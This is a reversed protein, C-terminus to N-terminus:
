DTGAVFGDPLLIAVPENDDDVIRGARDVLFIKDGDELVQGNPLIEVTDEDARDWRAAAIVLPAGGEVWRPPQNPSCGLVSFSLALLGSVGLARRLRSLIQPECRM